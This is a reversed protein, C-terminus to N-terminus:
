FGLTAIKKREDADLNIRDRNTLNPIPDHNFGTVMPTRCAIGDGGQIKERHM